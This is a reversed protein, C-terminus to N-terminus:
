TTAPQPPSTNGLFAVRRKARHPSNDEDQTVEWLCRLFFIRQGMQPRLNAALVVVLTALKSILHIKMYKM